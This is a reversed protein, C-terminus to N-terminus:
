LYACLAHAKCTPYNPNCICVRLNYLVLQKEVAVITASVRGQTVNYTSQREKENHQKGSYLVPRPPLSKGMYARPLKGTCILSATHFHQTVTLCRESSIM